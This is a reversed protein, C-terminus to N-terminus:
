GGGSSFANLVLADEIARCCAETGYIEALALIKRVHGRANFSRAV